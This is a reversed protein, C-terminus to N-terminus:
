RSWLQFGRKWIVDQWKTEVEQAGFMWKTHIFLTHMCTVNIEKINLLASLWNEEIFATIWQIWRRWEKYSLPCDLSGWANERWRALVFSVQSITISPCLVSAIDEMFLTICLNALCVSLASLLAFIWPFKVFELYGKSWWKEHNNHVLPGGTHTKWHGIGMASIYQWHATITKNERKADSLIWCNLLKDATVDTISFM